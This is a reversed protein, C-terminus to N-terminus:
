AGLWGCGAPFFANGRFGTGALAAAALCTGALDTGEFDTGALTTRPGTAFGAMTALGATFCLTGLLFLPPLLAQWPVFSVQAPSSTGGPSSAREPLSAYISPRILLRFTFFEGTSVIIGGHVDRVDRSLIGNLLRNCVLSYRSLAWERRNTQSSFKRVLRGVGVLYKRRNDVM